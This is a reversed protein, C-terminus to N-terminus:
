RVAPEPPMEMQVSVIYGQRQIRLGPLHASMSAVTTQLMGTEHMNEIAAQNKWFQILQATDPEDIQELLYAAIFGDRERVSTLYVTEILKRLEPMKGMPCRLLTTQAYM